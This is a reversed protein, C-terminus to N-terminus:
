SSPTAAAARPFYETLIRLLADKAYSKARVGGSGVKPPRRNCAVFRPELTPFWMASFVVRGASDHDSRARISQAIAYCTRHRDQFSAWLVNRVVRQREYEYPHPQWGM